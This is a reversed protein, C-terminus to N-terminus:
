VMGNRRRLIWEAALLGVLLGIATHQSALRQSPLHELTVSPAPPLDKALRDATQLAYSKGGTDRAADTLTQRDIALRTLEGPPAQVTFHLTVPEPKAKPEAPSDAQSLAPLWRLQYAGAPLERLTAEFMGRQDWRRQLQLPRRPLLEQSELQLVLPGQAPAQAPDLFQARVHVEAGLRYEKRDSLLRVGRSGAVLKGRALRRVTQGWYRAFTRDDSRYRLRWTEDTLHMWVEGTGVFHRVIAPWRVTSDSSTAVALQQGGPKVKAAEWLWSFMPLNRWVAQSAVHTDALQLCPDRGGLTTPRISFAGSSGHGGSPHIPLLLGLEPNAQYASPLFRPGAILALGGGREAVWSLLRPWFLRPLPEPNVDGLIVVDYSFLEQESLPFHRLATADVEFFRRDAEQLWVRVRLAPDRQLVEKLMRFEYSPNSQVLLVHIPDEHVLVELRWRHQDRNAEEIIPDAKQPRYQRQMSQPEPRNAEKATPGAEHPPEQGAQVM